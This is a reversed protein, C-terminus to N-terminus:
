TGRTRDFTSHAIGVAAIVGAKGAISLSVVIWVISVEVVPFGTLPKRFM